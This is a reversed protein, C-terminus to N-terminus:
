PRTVATALRPMTVRYSGTLTGCFLSYRSEEANNHEAQSGQSSRATLCVRGREYTKLHPLAM